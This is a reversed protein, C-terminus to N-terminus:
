VKKNQYLDGSMLFTQTAVRHKNPYDGEKANSISWQKLSV